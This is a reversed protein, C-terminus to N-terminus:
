VMPFAVEAVLVLNISWALIQGEAAGELMLDYEMVVLAAEM